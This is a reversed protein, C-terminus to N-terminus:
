VSYFSQIAGMTSGAVPALPWGNTQYLSPAAFTSTTVPPAATLPLYPFANFSSPYYPTFQCQTSPVGGYANLYIVQLNKSAESFENPQFIAPTKPFLFGETLAKAKESKKKRGKRSSLLHGFKMAADVFQTLNKKCKVFQSTYQVPDELQAQTAVRKLTTYFKNKIDNEDHRRLFKAIVVWRSGYDKFLKFLLQSEEVTWEM